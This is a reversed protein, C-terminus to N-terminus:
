RRGKKLASFFPDTLDGAVLVITIGANDTAHSTLPALGLCTSTGLALLMPKLWRRFHNKPRNKTQMDFRRHKNPNTSRPYLM